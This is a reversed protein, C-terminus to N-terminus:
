GIIRKLLIMHRLTAKQGYTMVKTTDEERFRRIM